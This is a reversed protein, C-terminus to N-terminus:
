LYKFTHGVSAINGIREIPMDKYFLGKTIFTVGAWIVLLLPFIEKGKGAIKRFYWSLM